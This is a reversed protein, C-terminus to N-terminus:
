NVGPTITVAVGRDAAAATDVADYGVGVRAIVRLAPAAEIVRRTYPEMGAVVASVGALGAILDDETPPTWDRPYVAELGAARLVALFPQDPGALTSTAILVKPM